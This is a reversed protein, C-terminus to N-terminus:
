FTSFDYTSYSIAPGTDPSFIEYQNVGWQPNNIGDIWVQPEIAYCAHKEIYPAANPSGKNRAQQSQKVPITGNQSNCTYIQIGRQNTSVDLQIGTTNSWLSLVPFGTSADGYAPPRDLIFANDIGQCGTGCIDQAANINHGLLSPALFDLAPVASTLGITGNPILIGDTQVFRTSYPMWVSTDNLATKEKFANLELLHSHLAHNPNPYSSVSYTGLTYVTGPFAEFATDLLAFTVSSANSLVTTWNRQDYGVIGGHLTDLGGNDNEPIHYTIGDITFTGNKIRNAYRGVVAGFYAHNTKTDRIYDAPNDYGVVVDQDMGNRDAVVLSTIRAGYPIFKATIAQASLTYETLPGSATSSQGLCSGVLSAFALSSVYM